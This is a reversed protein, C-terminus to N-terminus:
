LVDELPPTTSIMFDIHNAHINRQEDEIPRDLQFDSLNTGALLAERSLKELYRPVLHATSTQGKLILDRGARAITVDTLWLGPIHQRAFAVFYGSYGEGTNFMDAQLKNLIQKRNVLLHEIKRIEENIDINTHQALQQSIEDSNKIISAKQDEIEAVQAKLAYYQGLMIGGYIFHGAIIVLLGIVLHIGSFSLEHRKKVPQYLNIEQRM